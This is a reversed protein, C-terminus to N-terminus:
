GRSISLEDLASDLEDRKVYDDGMADEVANPIDFKDAFEIGDIQEDAIERILDSCEDQVIDYVRGYEVLDQQDMEYQIEESLREKTLLGLSQVEKTVEERIIERFTEELKGLISVAEQPNLNEVNSM